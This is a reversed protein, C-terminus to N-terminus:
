STFINWNIISSWIHDTDNNTQKMKHILYHTPVVRGLHLVRTCFSRSSSEYPGQPSVQLNFTAANLNYIFISQLTLLHPAQFHALVLIRTLAVRNYKCMLQSAWPPDYSVPCWLDLSERTELKWPQKRNDPPMTYIYSRSTASAHPPTMRGM